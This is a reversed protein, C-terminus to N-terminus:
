FTYLRIKLLCHPPPASVTWAEFYNGSDAQEKLEKEMIVMVDRDQGDVM